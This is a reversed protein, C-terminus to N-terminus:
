CALVLEFSMVNKIYHLIINMIILKIEIFYVPVFTITKLERFCIELVSYVLSGCTILHYKITKM